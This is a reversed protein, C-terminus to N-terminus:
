DLFASQPLYIDTLSFHFLLAYWVTSAEASSLSLNLNLLLISNCGNNKGNNKEM